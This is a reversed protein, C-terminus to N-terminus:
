YGSTVRMPVLGRRTRKIGGTHWEPVPQANTHKFVFMGAHHAEAMTRLSDATHSSWDHVPAAVSNIGEGELKTRYCALADLGDECSPSRFVLTPFMELLHNIGLWVDSTRPVTVLSASPFGAKAIEGLFTSGTRDTQACDHPLYHKGYHYGKQKMFAVREILTGHFARDCDIVRIERGVCQAYWVVTSAPAGLDWFTDVPTHGDVPFQAIRGESRAQEIRKAYVAGPIGVSFDCEYEQAYAEPTVDAKLAALEDAPIIGSESAKVMLAFWEPDSAAKQYRRFFHNRGKSTGIFTAWGTYDSLCPRVVEDWARPDIDAPEDIVVGDFYLGRMREFSDGSYLRINAGTPLTISLEAENAKTGPISATFRRLYGWAIDKAQERTPAIYGYRPPPNRRPNALSRMLLDQISCFTKGARRHVVM